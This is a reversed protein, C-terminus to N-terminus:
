NQQSVVGMDRAIRFFELRLFCFFALVCRCLSFHDDRVSESLKLSLIVECRTILKQQDVKLGEVIRLDRSLREWSLFQEKLSSIEDFSRPIYPANNFRAKFVLFSSLSVTILPAEKLSKRSSSGLMRSAIIPLFVKRSASLRLLFM